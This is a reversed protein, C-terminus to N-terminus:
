VCVHPRTELVHPFLTKISYGPRGFVTDMTGIERLASQILRAVACPFQVQSILDMYVKRQEFMGHYYTRLCAPLYPLRAMDVFGSWIRQFM